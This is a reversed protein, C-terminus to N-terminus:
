YEIKRLAEELCKAAKAVTGPAYAPSLNAVKMLGEYDLSGGAMCLARYDEWAKQFNEEARVRFSLAGMDSLAYSILYGPYMIVGMNAYLGSGRSIREEMDSWDREPAYLKDIEVSKKIREESTAQPNAYLWDEFECGACFACIERVVYQIQHYRFKDANDFFLEGFPGTFQEMAKSPIEVVDNPMEVFQTLPQHEMCLWMQYAHGMEHTLVTTDHISGTCNGFIYPMKLKVISTCFGMGTIKNPSATVDIYGHDAMTRYLSAIESDLKDYMGKAQEMLYAGDGLPKANGDPFILNVDFPALKEVGLRSAQRRSIEAYLPLLDSKVQRCFELLEKQGYSHRGKELNIYDVFRDFGNAKALAVRTKVLEDLIERYEEGNKLYADAVAITAKRRTDRDTSQLYPQMQGESLEMGEYSIRQTAHLQQYRGVLELEKAQLEKGNATLRLHDRQGQLFMPGFEGELESAFPSNLLANIFPADDLMATHTDNYRQEEAYFEDSSDLFCRINSLVGSFDLENILKEKEIITERLEPYSKASEAAKALEDLRKQVAEYDPRTYQLSKFDLCEM